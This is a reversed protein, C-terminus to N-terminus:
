IKLKLIHTHQGSRAKKEENCNILLYRPSKPCLPLLVCQLLAPIFTFGLLFPWWSANGMIVDLGFVQVVCWACYLEQEIM